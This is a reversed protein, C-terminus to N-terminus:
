GALTDTARIFDTFKALSPEANFAANYLLGTAWMCRLPIRPNM